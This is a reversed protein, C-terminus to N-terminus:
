PTHPREVVFYQWLLFLAPLLLFLLVRALRMWEYGITKTEEAMNRLPNCAQCAGTGGCVVCKKTLTHGVGHCNSCEGTGDCEYCDVM